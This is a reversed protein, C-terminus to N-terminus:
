SSGECQELIRIVQPHDAGRSRREILQSLGNGTTSPLSGLVESSLGLGELTERMSLGANSLLEALDVYQPSKPDNRLGSAVAIERPTRDTVADRLTPDAGRDLLLRALEARGARAANMLPTEGDVCRQDVEAGADLLRQAKEAHGYSAAMHLPAWGRAAGLRHIDAGAVILKSIIDISAHHDSEIAIHLSTYGDGDDVNPDAGARLLFEVVDPRNSFVARLLPTDNNEDRSTLYALDASVRRKSEALDDPESGPLMADGISQDDGADSMPENDPCLTPYDFSAFILM